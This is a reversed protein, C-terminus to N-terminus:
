ESGSSPFISDPRRDPQECSASATAYFKNQFAGTSGGFTGQMWALMPQRLGLALFGREQRRKHQSACAESLASCSRLCSAPRITELVTCSFRVSYLYPLTALASPATSRNPEGDGTMRVSFVRNTVARSRPKNWRNLLLLSTM